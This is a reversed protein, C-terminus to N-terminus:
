DDLIGAFRRVYADLRDRVDGATLGFDALGYRHQGHAHKPNRGFWERMAGAVDDPLEWGMREYLAAVTPLPHDVLRPYAVDVFTEPGAGARTALCKAMAQGSRTLAHRGAAEASVEDSYPRRITFVLSAYSAVAEVPDRHCHVVVADPCAELLAHLNGLHSPSKLVWGRVPPHAHGLVRLQLLYFAYEAGLHADALWASYADARFMDEFHQSAFSNQLLADCEEPGTASAAHIARFSPAMAYLQNLWRDAKAILQEPSPGPVPQLAEWFRLVRNAADQALLNHLLTTGTRPLGTIVLPARIPAARLEPCRSVYAQLELRNRLHRLVVRRLVDWGNASLGGTAACSDVLLQLPPIFSPDGWDDLGARVSVEDLLAPVSLAPAPTATTM